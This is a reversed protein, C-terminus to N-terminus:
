HGLGFHKALIGLGIILVPIEADPICEDHVAVAKVAKQVRQGGGLAISGLASFADNYVATRRRCECSKSDCWEEGLCEYGGGSTTLAVPVGIVVRYLNTIEAYQQGAQYLKKAWDSPNGDAAHRGLGGTLLLMGLFTGAREDGRFREPLGIRHPQLAAMARYDVKPEEYPRGPMSIRQQRKRGRRNKAVAITGHM